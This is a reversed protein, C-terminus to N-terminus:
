STIHNNPIFSDVRNNRWDGYMLLPLRGGPLWRGDDAWSGWVRLESKEMKYM